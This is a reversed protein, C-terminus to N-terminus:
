KAKSFAFRIGEKSIQLRQEKQEVHCWHCLTVKNESDDSGGLSKPIVHHEELNTRRRCWPVQCRWGDRNFVEYKKPM